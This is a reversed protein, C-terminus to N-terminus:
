SRILRIGNMLTVVFISYGCLILYEGVSLPNAFLRIGLSIVVLHLTTLEGFKLSINSKHGGFADPLKNYSYIM